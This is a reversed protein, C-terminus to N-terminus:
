DELKEIIVTKGKKSIKFLEANNMWELIEAFGANRPLNLGMRIEKCENDLFVYDFDYWKQLSSLINSLRENRFSFTGETWSLYMSADVTKVETSENRKSCVAQQDPSLVVSKNGNVVKLSGSLLTAVVEQSQPYANINFKTGLVITSIGGANVVFPRKSDKVVNFFVEGEVEVRRETGGFNDAFLLSSESSLHALTGDPLIVKYECGKDTKLVNHKGKGAKIKLSELSITKTLTDIKVGCRESLRGEGSDINMVSGDALVLRAGNHAMDIKNNDLLDIIDPAYFLSTAVSVALLFIAAYRMLDRYLISQRRSSSTLRYEVKEWAADSDYVDVRRFFSSRFEHDGLKDFLERNKSSESMWADIRRSNEKTKKGSIQAALSSAIKFVRKM